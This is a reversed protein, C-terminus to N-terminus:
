ISENSDWRRIQREVEEFLEELEDERLKSSIIRLPRKRKGMEQNGM